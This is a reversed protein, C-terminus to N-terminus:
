FSAHMAVGLRAGDSTQMVMPSIAPQGESVASQQSLGDVSRGRRPSLLGYVGAAIAASGMLINAAALMQTDDSGDVNVAGAIVGLSGAIVGATGTSRSPKFFNLGLTTLSAGSVVISTAAYGTSVNENEVIGPGGDYTPQIRAAEGVSLGVSDLWARLDPDDALEAIFANNRTSAVRGVLDGRGSRDILYAMACLVGDSDRFFPVSLQPFRDNRPFEGADRYEGLWRILTARSSQQGSSLQSVDRQRLEADVSDFHARLRVVEANRGTGDGATRSVEPVGPSFALASGLMGAATFIVLHSRM